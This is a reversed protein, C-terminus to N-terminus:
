SRTKFMKNIESAIRGLIKRYTAKEVIYFRKSQAAKRSNGRESCGINL